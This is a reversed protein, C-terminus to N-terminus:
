HASVLHRRYAALGIKTHGGHCPTCHPPTPSLFSTYCSFLSFAFVLKPMSNVGCLDKYIGYLSQNQELTGYQEKKVTVM